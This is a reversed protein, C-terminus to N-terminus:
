RLSTPRRLDGDKNRGAPQCKGRKELIVVHMMTLGEDNDRGQSLTTEDTTVFWGEWHTEDRANKTGARVCGLSGSISCRGKRAIEVAKKM